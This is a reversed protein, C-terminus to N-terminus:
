SMLKLLVSGSDILLLEAPFTVNSGPEPIKAEILHYLGPVEDSRYLLDIDVGLVGEVKQM